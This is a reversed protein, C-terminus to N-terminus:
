GARALPEVQRLQMLRGIETVLEREALPKALYGNMGMALYRERDGSMADATLALVPTDAWRQASARMARITTPGDMVPMHMDLLVLDFAEKALADLAEQGNAAEVVAMNFPRLFFRVVQRNIPQDDVLLVKLRSLKISERMSDADDIAADNAALKAPASPMQARFTIRFTSGLGPHSDVSAHWGMLEALRRTISLGLGTGGHKRSITEDAQAFPKFLRAMTEEDMGVGTDRVSVQIIQSGDADPAAKPFVRVEIRGNETFKIANSVLNSVCQQVRVPDFIMRQQLESDLSLSLELNKEEARPRWLKHTRKMLDFLDTETPAIEFKGAEIKSLDLIDNLIATLAKGSDIITQTCEAQMADMETGQLVQAMGLVGNLPTRIEHSMNALFASKAESAQLADKRAKDLEKERKRHDTIDVSIAAHYGNGMDHFTIQVLRGTEAVVMYPEGSMASSYFKDAYARHEEPSARPLGRVVANYQAQRYSVGAVLDEHMMRFRQITAENAFVPRMEADYIAVGDGLVNLARIMTDIDLADKRIM